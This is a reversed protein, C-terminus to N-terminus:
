IQQLLVINEVHHTHPFMDVPQVKAVKYFPAMVSLDRAQTAPNCSVYVIRSPSAELIANVVTEHMGSRPPDTIIVDPRGQSNIFAQDMITRIDGAMFETNTIKNLESNIRADEIAESVYELGIVKKCSGAIFNAITGTGTYLDYVTEKGTLGAFERVKRYLSLAQLTNTQYFSKPGIRFRLGEMEETIHDKGSFLVINQDTISDNGKQNITYMLSTIGPFEELLEKMLTERASSDEHRFSLIVMMEGTTTTRIIVTRLFGTQAKLDFFTLGNRIAHDYLFNRLENSPDPQLWCKEVRFVKDFKGPIHYGLVNKQIESPGLDIEEETLWRNNSFTYELKNRYYVTNDSGIIPLIEPLELKGIRLLQDEVQKQKYFLQLHYPLFQWQCGGCLEFHSCFPKERNESYQHYKVVRAEEYRKKKVIVRLDVVDGPVAHSTFVIKDGAKAISKGEAAIDVILVKEYLPKNKKRSM